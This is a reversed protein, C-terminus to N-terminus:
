GLFFKKKLRNLRSSYSLLGEHQLRGVVIGPAIGVSNAFVQITHEDFIRRSAFYKFADAPILLDAAFANAEQEWGETDDSFEEYFDRKGHKLIHAAEHFFSFWLQDDAKYRLTLQIIAKNTSPWYTVGNVPLKPLERVFIVAVGTASCLERVKTVFVDPDTITLKRIDPLIGLFRESDFPQCAVDKAELQGARLWAALAIRDM